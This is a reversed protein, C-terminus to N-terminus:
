VPFPAAERLAAIILAESAKDQQLKIDRGIASEAVGGGARLLDRSVRAASEALALATLNDM